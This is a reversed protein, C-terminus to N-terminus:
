CSKHFPPVAPPPDGPALYRGIARFVTDSANPYNGQCDFAGPLFTVAVSIGIGEQPLYAETAAYGGLLPNQLIWDGSRVIGLGYNYATQQTFCSPVCNAQKRGVGMLLPDTMAHYSESTLLKGTGVAVATTALDDITSTESAGTPTGWDANWYTAEEYFGRTAPVGLASRRESSYAHLAPEPVSGTDSATTGTLGMPVLVRERLLRDLPKGGVKALIEGLIMFNTHAYSWGTGPPFVVPRRFAYALRREYSWSQFPDANFDALWRPDSEYDPYGSTQNALMKLTVKDAEPLNPEWRRITDDLGVAHEEVLLMLLTGIYAFAVAGNRFRMDTTAPVGDLSEGFAREVVVTDGRTVKVLLSRLSSGAMAGRIMSAIRAAEASAPGPSAPAPALTPKPTPATHVIAPGLLLGAGLVAMAVVARTRREGM